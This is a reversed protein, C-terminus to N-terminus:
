ESQLEKKRFESPTLHTYKKFVKNFTSKSNFGSEFAIKLININDKAAELLLKKAEEVRYTNIFDYFNLGAYENIVYSLHNRPINLEDSLEPLTLNPEKFVENKEIHELLKKFYLESLDKPLKSKQYKDTKGKSKSDTNITEAQKKIREYELVSKIANSIQITLMEFVERDSNSIEFLVFGLIDKKFELSMIIFPNEYTLNKIGGPVIQSTLFVAEDAKYSIKAYNKYAIVAKSYRTAKNQENDQFLCIYCSKIGLKPFNQLIINSLKEIEFYATLSQTIVYFEFEKDKNRMMPYGDLMQGVNDIINKAKIKLERVFRIRKEDKLVSLINNFIYLIVENWIDSDRRNTIVEFVINELAIIFNNDKLKVIDEVLSDILKSAWESRLKEDIINSFQKYLLNEVEPILFEKYSDLDDSLGASNRIINVFLGESHLSDPCGCSRRVILRSPLETKEESKRDSLVALLTKLSQYGLDFLPQNVTTLPRALYQGERINDFGVVAIDEPVKIGKYDLEQIIQMAVFDNSAVVAEFEVKREEILTIVAKKGVEGFFEGPVILNDDLPIQFKDLTDRYANFRIGAETNNEPGRIFAIKKYKHIEILHTILDQMGCYNDVIVSPYGKM